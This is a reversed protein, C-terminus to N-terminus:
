PGMTWPNLLFTGIAAALVNGRIALAWIASLLFQMGLLPTVSIAAGCAFGSAISYPSAPMRQLRLWLYRGSRRWGISPWVINFLRQVLPPQRRRRFM